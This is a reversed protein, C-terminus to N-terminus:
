DSRRYEGYLERIRTPDDVTKPEWLFPASALVTSWRMEDAITEPDETWVGPLNRQHVYAIRDDPVVSRFAEFDYGARRVNQLDLVIMIPARRLLEALVDPDREPGDHVEVCVTMPGADRCLTELRGALAAVDVRDDARGLLPRFKSCGLFRAQALQVALYRRYHEWELGALGVLDSTGAFSLAAGTDRVVRRLLRELEKLSIGDDLQDKAVEVLTPSALRLLGELGVADFRRLPWGAPTIWRVSRRVEPM